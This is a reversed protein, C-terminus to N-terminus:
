VLTLIVSEGAKSEGKSRNEILTVTAAVTRIL